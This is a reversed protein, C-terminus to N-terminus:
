VTAAVPPLPVPTSVVSAAPASDARVQSTGQSFESQATSNLLRVVYEPLPPAVPLHDGTPQYGNEDAIYRLNILTGNSDTYSVSGEIVQILDSANQGEKLYGKEDVKIGNGTEYSFHFNGDPSSDETQNIIPIPTSEEGSRARQATAAVVPAPEQPRSIAPAILAFIAILLLFM